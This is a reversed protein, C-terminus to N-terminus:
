EKMLAVVRDLILEAVESKPLVPLEERLGNRGLLVVKNTDSGFTSEPRSVDNAVILDLSKKELKQAAHEELHETEAAFGVKLPGPPVQALIDENEVLTLTLDQGTRKTKQTNVRAPRYDAVAAAMILVHAQAAHQRVAQLMEMATGVSVIEVGHPVPATAAAKILVVRAGRDRAAEALAFGMKGSSRNGLYRVPDLPEQTGGATVVVTKGALPGHKGLLARIEALLVDVEPLRGPGVLGSALRGALPEVVHVGRARLTAVNAQTAPHTYMGGDMAPAVLVSARTSLYICTLLDDALGHALRALTHATAPVIALLDAQQALVIHPMTGADSAWLETYARRQTVSAFSLPTVFRTAGETLVTDVQVGAQTLQSALAVAKFAAISGCVGLVIRKDQLIRM